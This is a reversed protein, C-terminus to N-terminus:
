HNYITHLHYCFALIVEPNFTFNLHVNYWARREIESRSNNYKACHNDMINLNCRIMIVNSDFTLTLYINSM